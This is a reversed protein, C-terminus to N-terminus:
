ATREREIAAIADEIRGVTKIKLTKGKHRARYWTSYSVDARACVDTMTARAAVARQEITAMFDPTM